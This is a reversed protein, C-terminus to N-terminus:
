VVRYRENSAEFLEGVSKLKNLMYEVDDKKIGAEVAKNVIDETPVASKLEEQLKRIIEKLVGIRERQSKGMGVSIIDSDLKGTAPDIMVKFSEQVLAKVREVDRIETVKGHRLRTECIVLRMMGDLTRWAIPIAADKDASQSLRIDMFFDNLSRRCESTIRVQIKKAEYIWKRMMDLSIEPVYKDTGWSKTLAKMGEFEKQHVETAKQWLNTIHDATLEDDEKPVDFMTFVLDFRSLTDPPVNVQKPISEYQDFRGYKPNLSAVIPVRAFYDRNIGAKRVPVMGHELVTNLERQEEKEFKDLEDIVAFARDALVLMGAEAVWAGEGWGGKDKTVAVTLGKSSASRGAAYQARPVNGCMALLLVSKAVGPDGCLMIHSPGRLKRGDPLLLSEPSVQSCLVAEKIIEHGRVSPVTSAVLRGIINPDKAMEEMEKVDESTIMIARDADIEQIHNVHIYVRFEDTLNGKITIQAETLTGSITVISGVPPCDVDDYLVADITALSQDGDAIQDATEQLQIKRKNMWTSEKKLFKFSGKRGCADNECEFPMTWTGDPQQIHTIHTCRQCMFAAVVVAYRVETKRIITGTIAAYQGINEKRIERVTIQPKFGVIAVEARERFEPERDIPVSIDRLATNADALAKDPNNIFFDTASTTTRGMIGWCIKMDDYNIQLRLKTPFELVFDLIKDHYYRDFLIEWFKPSYIPKTEDGGEYEEM